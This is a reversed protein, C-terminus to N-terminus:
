FPNEIGPLAHERKYEDVYSEWVDYIPKRKTYPDM